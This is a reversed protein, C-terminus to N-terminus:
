GRRLEEEILRIKLCHVCYFAAQVRSPYQRWGEEHGLDRLLRWEHRHDRWTENIQGEYADTGM